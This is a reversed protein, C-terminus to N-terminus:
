DGYVGKCWGYYMNPDLREIMKDLHEGRVLAKAEPNYREITSRAPIQKCFACTLYTTLVLMGPKLNGYWEKLCDACAKNRCKGCPSTLSRIEKEDFCFCCVGTLDGSVVDATMKEILETANLCQKGHLVLERCVGDDGGEAVPKQLADWLDKEQM